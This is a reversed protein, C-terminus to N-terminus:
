DDQSTQEDAPEHKTSVTVLHRINNVTRSGIGHVRVLDDVSEFPGNAERDNVIREAMAPGIGPLLDLTERDATNLDILATAPKAATTQATADTAPTNPSTSPQRPEFTTTSFATTATTRTPSANNRTAITWALGITAAGAIFGVLAFRIRDIDSPPTPRYVPEARQPQQPSAGSPSTPPASQPQTMRM